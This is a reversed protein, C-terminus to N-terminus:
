CYIVITKQVCRRKKTTLFAALFFAGWKGSIPVNRSGAVCGYSARTRKEKLPVTFALLVLLPLLLVPNRQKDIHLNKFQPSKNFCM